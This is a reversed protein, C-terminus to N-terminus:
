PSFKCFRFFVNKLYFVNLSLNLSLNDSIANLNEPILTCGPNYSVPVKKASTFRSTTILETLFELTVTKLTKEYILDHDLPMFFASFM